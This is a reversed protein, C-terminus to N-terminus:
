GSDGASPWPVEALTKTTVGTLGYNGLEAPSLWAYGDWPDTPIPEGSVTCRYTHLTVRFHTYAHRVHIPTGGITADVGLSEKMHRVLASQQVEDPLVEGGPLEWLGGLLGRAIRRVFLVRGAREVFAAVAERHPVPKRQRRIPRLDPVGLAHALCSSAVPCAVCLPNRPLCITAGLEMMAQNHRGAAGKPLLAQAYRRLARKGAARKPDEGYDFLRCLVRVINGDVAPVHQAFAISLIADATYEGVGPLSLLQARDDPVVGAHQTRVRMAAQRLNRARAYYGLGQWLALIDDLDADALDLVTPFRAVFRVYYPIVTTVQTQQLMIESVWICYPDHTRRWPLDRRYLAYWSLLRDAITPDATLPLSTSINM